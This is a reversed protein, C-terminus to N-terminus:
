HLIPTAIESWVITGKAVVLDKASTEAASMAELHDYSIEYLKNHVRIYAVREADNYALLDLTEFWESTWNPPPM